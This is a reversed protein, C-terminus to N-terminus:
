SARYSMCLGISVHLAGCFLMMSDIYLYYVCTCLQIWSFFFFYFFSLCITRRYSYLSLPIVRSVRKKDRLVRSRRKPLSISGGDKARGFIRFRKLHVNEGRGGGGWNAFFISRATTIIKKGSNDRYEPILIAQLHISLSNNWGRWPSLRAPKILWQDRRDTM